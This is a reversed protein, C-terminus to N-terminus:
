VCVTCAVCNKISVRKAVFRLTPDAGTVDKDMLPKYFYYAFAVLQNDLLLVSDYLM